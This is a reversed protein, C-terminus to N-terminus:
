QGPIAPPVHPTINSKLIKLIPTGDVNVSYLLIWNSDIQRVLTNYWGTRTIYMAYITKPEGGSIANVLDYQNIEERFDTITVSLDKRMFMDKQSLVVYGGVPVAIAANREANENLWKIGQRCSSGWYDGADNWRKQAGPLGGVLFNFYSIEYPHMAAMTYFWTAFPAAVIVSAAAVRLYGPSKVIKGGVDKLWTVGAAAGIGALAGLPIAYEIFHRVGDFNYMHPMLTRLVPLSFWLLLFSFAERKGPRNINYIAIGVGVGGFILMAPPQVSLFLLLTDWQIGPSGKSALQSYHGLFKGLREITDFWLYPWVLIFTAFAILPSLFLYYLFYNRRGNKKDKPGGSNTERLDKYSILYWIAIIVPILVVNLKTAAAVGLLASAIAMWKASRNIISWRAALLTFAMICAYPLDKTNFHTDAWFRPQFAITFMSIAAALMGFKGRMFFFMLALVTAVLLFNPLHHAEIAGMLGLKLFFIRCGIASLLNGFYLTMWPETHSFLRPHTEMPPLKVPHSFDLWSRDFSLFYNLNREATYWDGEAEDWTIGYHPATSLALILFVLCFLGPMFYKLNDRWFSKVEKPKKASKKKTL